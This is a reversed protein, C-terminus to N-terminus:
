ATAHRAQQELSFKLMKVIQRSVNGDDTAAMAVIKERIDDPIRVGTIKRAMRLVEEGVRLPLVKKADQDHHM